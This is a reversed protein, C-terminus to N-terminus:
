RGWRVTPTASLGTARWSGPAHRAKWTMAARIRHTGSPHDYFIWQDILPRSIPRGRAERMALAAFGDPDRAIDLGVADARTEAALQIANRLPFFACFALGFALAIAPLAAPDALGGVRWTSAFRSVLVTAGAWALWALLWVLAAYVLPLVFLHRLRLHALEHGALARVEAATVPKYPPDINEKPVPLVNFWRESIIVHPKGRSWRAEGGLFGGKMIGHQGVQIRDPSQGSARAMAEIDARLPGPPLPVFRNYHTDALLAAIWLSACLAPLMWFRRPMRRILAMVIPLAVAVLLATWGLAYLYGAVWEPVSEAGPGIEVWNGKPDRVKTRVSAMPSAIRQLWFFVPLQALGVFLTLPLAYLATRLWRLRTLRAALTRARASLRTALFLWLAILTVAPLVLLFWPGYDPVCDLRTCEAAHAQVYAATAADPDFGARSASAAM